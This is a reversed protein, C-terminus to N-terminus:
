SFSKRKLYLLYCITGLLSFASVLIGLRIGKPTYIFEITHNGPKMPVGILADFIKEYTSEKGDVLIRFGDEYPITTFLYNEQESISVRGKVYSGKNEFVQMQNKLLESFVKEYIDKRFYYVYPFYSDKKSKLTITFDRGMSDDILEQIVFANSTFRGASKGELFVEVVDDGELFSSVINPYFYVNDKKDKRFTYTHLDIKQLPIREYISVNKGYLCSVIANQYALRDEVKEDIHCVTDQYNMVTGLSLAYKNKYISVERKALDYLFNDYLSLSFSDIKEYYPHEELWFLYRIGLLSDSVPMSRNYSITNGYVSYGLKVFFTYQSESLTSLFVHVGHYDFYLSDNMSRNIDKEMRYFSPGELSLAEIKKHLIEYMGEEAEKYQFTFDEVMFFFNLFLEAFVLFAFLPFIKKKYISEKQYLFLLLLYVFFLFVSVFVLPIKVFSFQKWLVFVCLIPYIPAIIFLQKKTIYQIKEFSSAALYLLFFCLLFTYRGSFCSPISFASWVVDVYNIFISLLFILIMFFSARKEKKSIHSNFFYLLYLIFSFIGVYIHYRGKSLIELYNHNGLILGSFVKLPSSFSLSSVSSVETRISNSLELFTPILLFSPLLGGLLSSLFFMGIKKGKEKPFLSLRYFFYLVSFICVMYGMYYNSFITIMLSVIYLTPKKHLIIKDIGLMVLPLMYVADMWMIHFFYAGVYSMFAYSTSFLLWSKKNGFHFSLYLYMTFSAFCLKLLLIVFTALATASPPFLFLLFLFPSALYYAYTGVMSGGIGKSFSYSTLFHERFYQYLAKYQAQLDCTFITKELSFFFGLAFFVLLFLFLPIFFSLIYNQKQKLKQIM